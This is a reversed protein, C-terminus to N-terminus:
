KDGGGVTAPALTIRVTTGVDQESSLEIDGGLTRVSERAIALGLGFGKSDHPDGARYFRDFIRPQDRAPIGTGTDVVEIVVSGTNLRGRMTVSGYNTHRVANAGLSSLAQELLDADGAIALSPPCDIGIEVGDRRPLAEAVQELVPAVEVTTLRPAEERAEARALVLLARTLRTLRDPRV